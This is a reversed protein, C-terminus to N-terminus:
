AAKRRRMVVLGGLGALLLFGAAPVPVPTPTVLNQSRPQLPPNHVGQLYVLDWKQGVPGGLLTALYDNAKVLASANSTAVTFTGLGVDLGADEEYVIEWLALQFGASQAGKTLDLTAYVSDFLKQINALQAATLVRQAFPSATVVYESGDRMARMIELCFATFNEAVSDGNIDGKLAFAGARTTISFAGMAGTSTTTVSARGNTGFPNGPTQFNVTFAQAAAGSLTLAAAVAFPKILSTLKM